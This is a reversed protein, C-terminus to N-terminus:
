PLSIRTTATTKLADFPWRCPFKLGIQQATSSGTVLHLHRARDAQVCEYALNNLTRYKLFEPAVDNEIPSVSFTAESRLCDNALAKRSVNFGECNWM